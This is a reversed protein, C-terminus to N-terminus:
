LMSEREKILKKLEELDELTAHKSIFNKSTSRKALYNTREKNKQRYKDIAKKQADTYKEAM